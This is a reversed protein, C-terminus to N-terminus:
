SLHELCKAMYPRTSVGFRAGNKLTIVFDNNFSEQNPMLLQAHILTEDMDWILTKHRTLEGFEIYRGELNSDPPTPLTKIFSLLNMLDKDILQEPEKITTCAIVSTEYYNETDEEFIGSISNQSSGAFLSEM